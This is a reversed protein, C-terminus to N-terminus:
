SSQGARENTEGQVLPQLISELKARARHLAVAVAGVTIELADAIQQHSQDELFRLCFVEGERGPLQGIAHALRDSLEQAMAASVPNPDGAVLELAEISVSPRRRRVRDLARCVALRRLLALWNKVKQTRHLEYAQLFVEQTVDEADAAQGLVRWAAGFVARGYERVMANWDIGM